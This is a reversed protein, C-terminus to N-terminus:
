RSRKPNRLRGEPDMELFLRWVTGRKQLNREQKNTKKKEKRLNITMERLKAIHTVFTFEEGYCTQNTKHM